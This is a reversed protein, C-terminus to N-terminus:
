ECRDKRQLAALFGNTELLLADHAPRTLPSDDFAGLLTDLEARFGREVAEPSDHARALSRLALSHVAIQAGIRTLGDDMTQTRELFYQAIRAVKNELPELPEHPPVVTPDQM